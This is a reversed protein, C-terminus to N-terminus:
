KPEERTPENWMKTLSRRDQQQEENNEEKAETGEALVDAIQAEMKAANEIIKALRDKLETRSIIEM